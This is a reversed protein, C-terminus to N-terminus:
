RPSHFENDLDDGHEEIDFAFGGRAIRAPRAASKALVSGRKPAGVKGVTARSVHMEKAARNIRSELTAAGAAEVRFFAITEQLQEAQSSLEQSRVHRCGEETATIQFTRRIELAGRM